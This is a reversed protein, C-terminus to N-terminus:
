SRERGRRRFFEPCNKEYDRGNTSVLYWIFIIQDPPEKESHNPVTKFGLFNQIIKKMIGVTWLESGERIGSFNGVNKKMIGVTWLESGEWIGSFNRVIKKMIGVM